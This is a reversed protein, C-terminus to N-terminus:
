RRSEHNRCHGVRPPSAVTDGHVQHDADVRATRRGAAQHGVAVAPREADAGRGSEVLPGATTVRHVPQRLRDGGRQRARGRRGHARSHEAHGPGAGGPMSAPGPARPALGPLRSPSSPSGPRPGRGAHRGEGGPGGLRGAHHQDRAGARAGRGDDVPLHHPLGVARAPESPSMPEATHSARSASTATTAASSPRPGAVASVSGSSSRRSPRGRATSPGPRSRWPTRRSGPRARRAPAPPSRAPRPRVVLDRVVDHARPTAPSSAESSATRGAAVPGTTSAPASSVWRARHQGAHLCPQGIRRERGVLGGDARGPEGQHREADGVATCEGRSATPDPVGPRSRTRQDRRNRAVVEVM